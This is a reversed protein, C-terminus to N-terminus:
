PMPRSRVTPWFHHLKKSVCHLHHIFIRMLEFRRGSFCYVFCNASANVTLLANTTTNLYHATFPQWDPKVGVLQSVTEALRLCFDPLQCVLFLTVMGVVLMTVSPDSTSNSRRLRPSESLHRETTEPSSGPHLLQHQQNFQRQLIYVLRFNLFTLCALPLLFRFLFYVITKYLIFYLKNSRMASYVLQPEVRSLCDNPVNKIDHEFFSPVNYIVALLIVM